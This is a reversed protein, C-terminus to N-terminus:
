PYRGADAALFAAEFNMRGFHKWGHGLLQSDYGHRIASLRHSARPHKCTAELSLEAIVRELHDRPMGRAALVWGGLADSQLEHNRNLPCNALDYPPHNFVLHGVEHGVIGLVVSLECLQTNCHRSLMSAAWARNFFVTGSGAAFNEVFPTMTLNLPGCGLVGVVSELAGFIRHQVPDVALPQPVPTPKPQLWAHLLKLGIAGAVGVVAATAVDELLADNPRAM